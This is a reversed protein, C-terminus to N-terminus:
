CCPLRARARPPPARPRAQRTEVDRGRVIPKCPVAREVEAVHEALGPGLQARPSALRLLGVILGGGAPIFVAAGGLGMRRAMPMVVEDGNYCAAAVEAISTKFVTIALGTLIGILVAALLFRVSEEVSANGRPAPKPREVPAPGDLQLLLGATRPPRHQAPMVSAVCRRHRCSFTPLGQRFGHSLCVLCALLLSVHVRMQRLICARWSRYHPRATNLYLHPLAWCHPPLTALACLSPLSIEDASARQSEEM